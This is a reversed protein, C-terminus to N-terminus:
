ETPPKPRGERQRVWREVDMSPDFGGLPSAVVAWDPTRRWYVEPCCSVSEVVGGGSGEGRGGMLDHFREFDIWTHWEGTVDDRLRHSAILVSNSHAHECALSYSAAASVAGAHGAEAGDGSPENSLAEVLQQAFAKTEWQQPVNTMRLQMQRSAGPFTMGKVEVLDPRGRHILDAYGQVETDNWEKVVTLRFVTRERRERLADVSDLLRGWADKFLPRDIKVLADESPADVSLYLQTVPSLTRILEPHQGNTVLFTSIRREHLMATLQNIHPYMIPEGVLSLACHQPSLAEQLREPTVGPASAMQQVMRKHAAVAHEIIMEPPDATWRFGKSVPHTHHRWCFVCRNACALSTTTEMCRHSEIGYFTHKYCGGRGKMQSKTWRCMKVASHTGVLQYGQQSLNQRLLPNLM